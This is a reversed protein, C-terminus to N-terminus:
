EPRATRSAVAVAAYFPALRVGPITRCDFAENM